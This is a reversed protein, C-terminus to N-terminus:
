YRFLVPFVYINKTLDNFNLLMAVLHVRHTHM